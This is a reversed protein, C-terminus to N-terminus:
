RPVLTFQVVPEPKGEAAAENYRIVLQTASASVLTVTSGSFVISTPNENDPALSWNGSTNPAFNYALGGTSISYTTPADANQNLTLNFGDIDETIANGDVTLASIKWPQSIQAVLSDVDDTDDECTCKVLFLSCFLVVLLFPNRFANM